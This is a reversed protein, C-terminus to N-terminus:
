TPASATSSSSWRTGDSCTRSRCTACSATSSSEAACSSSSRRCPGCASRVRAAHPSSGAACPAPRRPSRSSSRTPSPTTSSRRSRIPRGSSRSDATMRMGRKRPDDDVFGIATKGLNPNLQMERVVMQGGSGAGIILVEAGKPIRAGRAPREVVLRVALRAGAVFILTLLFDLVVVSRPLNPEFPQAVTFVIVLIASSVAVARLIGAFDQGGVYRWWKQYMGFAAFVIVKGVAVFALSQTLVTWYRDPIGGPDDLFRLRFACFFALAVLILDAAVQLTRNRYVPHNLRHM